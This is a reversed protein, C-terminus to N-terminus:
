PCGVAMEVKRVEHQATGAAEEPKVPGLRENLLDALRGSGLRAVVDQFSEGDHRHQWALDVLAEVTPTVRDETIGKRVAEGLRVDGSTEGLHGGVTMLYSYRREENVVTMSGVLGIDVVQQKACSNPCGSIQLAIDRLWASQKSETAWETLLPSRGIDRVAGQSNTVALVCFETGPCAGIHTLGGKTGKVWLGARELARALPKVRGAKVWHLEVDQKATLQVRGNGYRRSLRSLTRLQEARIEGLPVAVSVRSYGTQQQPAVGAMSRSPWLLPAFPATLMTGMRNLVSPGDRAPGSTPLPVERNEPLNRKEEFVRNFMSTFKEIGWQDILFKLRSKAKNRNGYKTHLHFIAQCAPLADELPIWERLKYGLMPHAGLSGGVWLEFGASPHSVAAFGIDNIRAESACSRCGAFYINLRSPMLPNLLDSQKIFAQSIADAWPRTDLLSDEGLGAHSCATVNRMTHGCASRTTIGVEELKTWIEPVEEVRVWHLELDQRTTLHGWGRGHTEALDALRNLQKATVRWGSIRSRLM